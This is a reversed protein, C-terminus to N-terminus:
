HGHAALWAAGAPTIKFDHSVYGRLVAGPPLVGDRAIFALKRLANIGRENMREPNRGPRYIHFDTWRGCREELRAGGHLELLLALPVPTVRADIGAPEYVKDPPRVWPEAGPLALEAIREHLLKGDNPFPKWRIPAIGSPEREGPQYWYSLPHWGRSAISLVPKRHPITMVYVYDRSPKYTELPQWDTAWLIDADVPHSERDEAEWRKWAEAATEESKWPVVRNGEASHSVM